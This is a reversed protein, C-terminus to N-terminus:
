NESLDYLTTASSTRYQLCIKGNLMSQFYMELIPVNTDVTAINVREFGNGFAFNHVYFGNQTLKRWSM